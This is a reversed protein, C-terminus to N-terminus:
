SEQWKREQELFAQEQEQYQQWQRQQEQYQQYKCEEEHRVHAPVQKSSLINGELQQQQPDQQKVPPLKSPSLQEVKRQLQEVQSTLERKEDDARKFASDALQM